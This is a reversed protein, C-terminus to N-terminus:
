RVSLGRFQSIPSVEERDLPCVTKNVRGAPESKLIFRSAMCAIRAISYFLLVLTHRCATDTCRCAHVYLNAHAHM